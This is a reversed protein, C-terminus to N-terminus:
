NEDTQEDGENNIFNEEEETIVADWKGQDCGCSLCKTKARLLCGCDTCHEDPRLTSHRSSHWECERCIVLREKSVELIQKRLHEPPYM